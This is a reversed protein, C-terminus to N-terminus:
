AAVLKKNALYTKSAHSEMTRPTEIAKDVTWGTKIRIWAAEYHIISGALRVAETLPLREGRYTVFRTRRRNTAQETPTAWRCNDPEYNGDNNSREISHGPSPRPGMDAYFNEFKQWRECVKIGRGVYNKSRQRNTNSCRSIMGRWIAHEQSKSMGHMKM